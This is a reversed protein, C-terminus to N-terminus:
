QKPDQSLTMQKEGPSPPPPFFSTTGGKERLPRLHSRGLLAFWFFRKVKKHGSYRNGITSAMLDCTPDNQAGNKCM